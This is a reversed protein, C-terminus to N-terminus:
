QTEINRTLGSLQSTMAVARLKKRHGNGQRNRRQRGNTETLSFAIGLVLGWFLYWFLIGTLTPGGWDWWFFGAGSLPSTVIGSAVWVLAGYLLGSLWRSWSSVYRFFWLYPIGLLAGDIFHQAMGWGFTLEKSSGEPVLRPGLLTAFDLKPLGFSVEWYGYITAVFTAIVSVVLARGFQAESM